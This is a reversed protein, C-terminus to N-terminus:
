VVTLARDTVSRLALTPAPVVFEVVGGGLSRSIGEKVLVPLLALEQRLQQQLNAIAEVASRNRLQQLLHRAQQMVERRRCVDEFDLTRVYHTRDNLNAVLLALTRSKALAAIQSFLDEVFNVQLRVPDDTQEFGADFQICCAAFPDGKMSNVNVAIPYQLLVHRLVSLERMEQINLAKCFFGKNPIFVLLHEGELRHLAERIPTVSVKLQGALESPHLPRGPAFRYNLLTQKLEAYVHVASNKRRWVVGM